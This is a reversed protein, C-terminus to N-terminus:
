KKDPLAVIADIEIQVDMPLRVAQIASRAPPGEKFYGEYVSNFRQLEDMDALYCTVKLVDRLDAGADEVIAKLNELVTHAEDEISGRILTGTEPDLPIQGSIFLLGNYIVGQSYPGKPAALSDSHYIRKNAM